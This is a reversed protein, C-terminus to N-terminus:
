FYLIAYVEFLHFPDDAGFAEEAATGPLALGYVAGLLVNENPTWDVYLNVEDAFDKDSVPTGFYNSEALDFHFYLAGIGLTDTPYAALHVMHNVQNSNFLLYNGTIEGQTWTGWGRSFEYFLPDFDEREDDAPDPDGSFYAFRYALTPTWPLASFTYAPEIYFARADFEANDGDGFQQVVEAHLTLDEFGPWRAEGLRLSAVQMGERPVEADFGADVDTIHLYSAGIRGLGWDYEANVGALETDGQDPDGQLWFLQGSVPSTELRVVGALDFASRPALWYVADDASDFDGDWILFGDGIQFDQAGFSVDIADEGLSDALLAGSRWGAFLYELDVDEEDGSTFGGADGDGRTIAAIASLGGYLSGAAETDYALDLGPEVYGEIWDADGTNEGSELDFRGAGFNTNDTVFYGAGAELLLGVALGDREILDIARATEAGTLCLLLSLAGPLRAVLLRRPAIRM